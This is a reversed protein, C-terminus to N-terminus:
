SRLFSHVDKAMQPQVQRLAYVLRISPEAEEIGTGKGDLILKYVQTHLDTFGDSFEINKGDVVMHRYAKGAVQKPVDGPAISLFWRVRANELELFGAMREPDSKHVEYKQVPGFLWLLVDFLHIGINTALGGSKSVDGKWSVAYWKGRPTIYTLEVDHKKKSSKADDRLKRLAAHLRLQLVTYVRRGTEAELEKLADLNWPSSVLPKECVADAGIRFAFRVHSDHLYNPSCISVYHIRKEEGQRRLKDAHRDFREFETFFEVDYSYRDLIGVSDQPDLAAVLKNGTDHIAQIHRPAVYGGCGILAFNRAKRGDTDAMTYGIVVM